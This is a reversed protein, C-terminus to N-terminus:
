HQGRVILVSIDVKRMLNEAVSGLLMRKVGRRGHSGLVLLDAGSDVVATVIQDSASRDESSLFRERPTLGAEKAKTVAENLTARGSGLLAYHIKGPDVEPMGHNSFTQLVSEDVAHAIELVANHFRALLIAEDLAKSSTESDDIAILIHKYM